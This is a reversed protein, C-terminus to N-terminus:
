RAKESITSSYSRYWSAFSAVGQEFPMPKRLGAKLLKSGDYIRGPNTNTRGLMKLALSLAVRPLVLPPVPHYAVELGRALRQEVDHYNNFPSEDDSVIYVEGGVDPPAEILFILAAVVNDVHVLNMRRNGELCSKVYNVVMPRRLLDQALKVLNKGGPGFVAAPRLVTTECDSGLLLQEVALKACEYASAPRCETFENVVDDPINGVVVATSCHIIRRIGASRCAALLNHAAAMNDEEARTTALYALHVVTSGPTILARVTQADLLSGRVTTMRHDSLLGTTAQRHVLIRVQSQSEPSLKALLARGIFSTAGTVILASV